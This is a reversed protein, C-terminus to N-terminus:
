GQSSRYRRDPREPRARAGGRRLPAGHCVQRECRAAPHRCCLPTPLRSHSALSPHPVAQVAPQPTATAQKNVRGVTGWSQQQGVQPFSPLRLGDLAACLVPGLDEFSRAPCVWSCSNHLRRARQPRFNVVTAIRLLPNIVQRWCVFPRLCCAGKSILLCAATHCGPAVRWGAAGDTPAAGCWLAARHTWPQLTPSSPLTVPHWTWDQIPPPCPHISPCVCPHAPPANPLQRCDIWSRGM